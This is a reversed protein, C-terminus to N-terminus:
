TYFVITKYVHYGNLLIRSLHDPKSGANSLLDFLSQEYLLEREKKTSPFFALEVLEDLYKTATIRTVQLEHM